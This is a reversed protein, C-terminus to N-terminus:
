SHSPPSSPYLYVNLPIDNIASVGDIKLSPVNYRMDVLAM